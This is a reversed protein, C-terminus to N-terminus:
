NANWNKIYSKVLKGSQTLQSDTWGGKPNAGPKLISAGEEKDHVSWNCHTLQHKKMFAMWKEVYEYNVGGDGDANVTGWETVMIPLGNDIAKQAKNLLWEHHSGAYFHLTYAINKYGEIPNESVTDVDQSWHPTGVVIINDPDIKRIAKIVNEAYPKIVDTWSVKLPENYIEYIVNPYKGYKRAINEFFVIADEENDEADYSHWDIIVYLGLDICAEVVKEVNKVNHEKDFIYSDHISPDASMPIRIITSNWDNKLWAVAEKNYFSNGKYYNNSWFLSNGAFSVPIGKSDVIKSGNINLNGHKEVTSQLKPKSNLAESSKQHNNCSFLFLFIILILRM